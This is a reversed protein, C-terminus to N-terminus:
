TGLVVVQKELTRAVQQQFDFLEYVGAVATHGTQIPAFPFKNPTLDDIAWSDNSTTKHKTQHEFSAVGCEVMPYQDGDGIWELHKARRRAM